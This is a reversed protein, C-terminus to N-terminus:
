GHSPGAHAPDSRRQSDLSPLVPCYARSETRSKGVVPPTGPPSPLTITHTRMKRCITTRSIGLRQAALLKNGGGAGRTSM